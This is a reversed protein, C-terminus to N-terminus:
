VQVSVVASAKRPRGRASLLDHFKEAEMIVQALEEYYINCVYVCIYVYM